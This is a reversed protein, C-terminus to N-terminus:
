RENMMRPNRTMRPEGNSFGPFPARADGGTVPDLCPCSARAGKNAQPVRPYRLLPTGDKTQISLGFGRAISDIQTKPENGENLHGSVRYKPDDLAANHFYRMGAMKALFGMLDSMNVDKLVFGGTDPKREPIEPFAIPPPPSEPIAPECSHFFRHRFVGVTIGVAFVLCLM